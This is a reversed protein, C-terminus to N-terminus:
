ASGAQPGTIGLVQAMFTRMRNSKRDTRKADFAARGPAQWVGHPLSLPAAGPGGSPAHRRQRRGHLGLADHHGDELTHATLTNARVDSGGQKETMAMGMTIAKKEAM